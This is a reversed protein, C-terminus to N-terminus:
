LECPIDRPNKIFRDFFDKAEYFFVIVAFLGPLNLSSLEGAPRPASDRVNGASCIGEMGCPVSLFGACRQAPEDKDTM